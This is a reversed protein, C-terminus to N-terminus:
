FVSGRKGMVASGGRSSSVKFNSHFLIEMNSLSFFFAICLDVDAMEELSIWAIQVLHFLFTINSSTDDATLMFSVHLIPISQIESVM